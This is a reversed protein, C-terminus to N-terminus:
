VIWGELYYILQLVILCGIGLVRCVFWKSHLHFVCDMLRELSIVKQSKSFLEELVIFISYIVYSRLFNQVVLGRKEGSHETNQLRRGVFITASSTLLYLYRYINYGSKSSSKWVIAYSLLVVPSEDGTRNLFESEMWSSRQFINFVNLLHSHFDFQLIRWFHWWEDPQLSKINVRITGIVVSM